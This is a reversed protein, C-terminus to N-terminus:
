GAFLADPDQVMRRLFELLSDAVRDHIGDGSIAVGGDPLLAYMHSDIMFDAFEVFAARVILHETGWLCIESGDHYDFREMGDCRAYLDRLPRQWPLPLVRGAAGPTPPRLETGSARLAARFAEFAEDGLEDDPM